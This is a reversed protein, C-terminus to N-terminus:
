RQKRKNGPLLMGFSKTRMLKLYDGIQKTITMSERIQNNEDLTSIRDRIEDVTLGASGGMALPIKAKKNCTSCIFKKDKTKAWSMTGFRCGCIPCVSEEKKPWLGM